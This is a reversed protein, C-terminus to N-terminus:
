VSKALNLRKLVKEAGLVTIIDSLPPGVASGTLQIRLQKKETSNLLNMDLNALFKDVSVSPIKQDESVPDNFFFGAKGLLEPVTQVRDQMVEMVKKCYEYDNCTKSALQRIGDPSNIHKGNIWLLKKVDVCSAARNIGKIDFAEILDEMAYIERKTNKPNWGLFAVFNNLAEPLIGLEDRYYSIFADQHRKSLKTGDLKTLLPLHAFQPPQWGFSKYLDFHLLTSPIWEQGRMVLSIEMLHDDVVNAFHYTPFGDSKIIVPDNRQADSSPTISGYIADEYGFSDSSRQFKIVGSEHRRDSCSCMSSTSHDPGLDNKVIPPCQCFYARRTSLLHQAYKKYIDLRQSQIQPGSDFKIKAWELTDIISDIAGKVTRSSDTDEIRLIITGGNKKAWLFNFLATRLGGLHLFGTPSPAFRVRM